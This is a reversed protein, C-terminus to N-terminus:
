IMRHIFVSRPVPLNDYSRVTKRKAFPIRRRWDATGKVADNRSKGRGKAREILTSLCDDNYLTM